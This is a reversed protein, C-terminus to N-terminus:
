DWVGLKGRGEGSEWKIVMLKKERDTFRIRNQQICTNTNYKLNWMYIGDYLIQRERGSKNWLAYNERPRDVNSCIVINWEKHSLLIGNHWHFITSM